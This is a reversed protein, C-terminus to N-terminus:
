LGQVIRFGYRFGSGRFPTFLRVTVAMTRVSWFWLIKLVMPVMKSKKQFQKQPSREIVIELPM